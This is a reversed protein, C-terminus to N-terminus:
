ARGLMQKVKALDHELREYAPFPAHCELTVWGSYGTENLADFLPQHDAEGEGLRCQIFSESGHKTRNVFTGPGGAEPIRKEDKVHVHFMRKGLGIVSDRGYDTDTIYMNGADHILGVNDEGVMDLLRLGSEVTEVLSINHIELVISKGSKAAEVACKRLWHAAKAYHYDQALFANPGGAGVRIMGSGLSGSIDLIRQFDSFAQECEKDSGTSFGGMYGALVPIELGLDDAVSRLEKIRPASTTASLHPERVAIEIGDFGLKKTLQLAEQISHEILVGSFAAFKM